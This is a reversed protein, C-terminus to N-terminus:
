VSAGAAVYTRGKVTLSRISDLRVSRYGAADVSYVTM